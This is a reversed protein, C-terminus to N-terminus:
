YLIMQNRIIFRELLARGKRELANFITFKQHKAVTGMNDPQEGAVATEGQNNYINSFDVARPGTHDWDSIEVKKVGNM